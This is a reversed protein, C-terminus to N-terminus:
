DEFEVTIRNEINAQTLKYHLDNKFKELQEMKEKALKQTDLPDYVSWSNREIYGKTMTEVMAPDRKGDGLAKELYANIAENSQHRTNLKTVENEVSQYNGIMRHYIDLMRDINRYYVIANAITYTKGDIEITVKANAENLAAKLAILNNLLAVSEQYGPKISKELVDSLPKGNNDVEENAKRVCCLQYSRMKQVRGELIKKKELAQYLTMTVTSM